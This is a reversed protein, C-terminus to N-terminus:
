RRQQLPLCYYSSVKCILPQPEEDKCSMQQQQSVSWWRSPWWDALATRSHLTLLCYRSVQLTLLYAMQRQVCLVSRCSFLCPMLVASQLYRRLLARQRSAPQCWLLLSAVAIVGSATCTWWDRHRQWMRRCAVWRWVVSAVSATFAQVVACPLSM